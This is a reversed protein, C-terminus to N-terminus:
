HAHPKILIENCNGKPAMIMSESLLAYCKTWAREVEPTWDEGLGQQLTWLLANGVLKYHAPRVGYDVHRSAMANIEGSLEDGKDLRAIITSLMNMLKQYQQSMNSPFMRRLSKNYSFLKTYFVDGVIVPDMERFVRWSRKILVIESVEM